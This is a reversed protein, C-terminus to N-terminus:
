MQSSLAMKKSPYLYINIKMNTVTKSFYILYPSNMTNWNQDAYICKLNVYFWTITQGLCAIELIICSVFLYFYLRTSNEVRNCFVIATVVM